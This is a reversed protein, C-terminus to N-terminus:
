EGIQRRVRDLTAAGGAGTSSGPQISGERAQVESRRDTPPPNHVPCYVNGDNDIIYDHGEPCRPVTYRANRLKELTVNEGPHQITWATINASLTQRNVSCAAVKSKDIQTDVYNKETLEDEKFYYGGLIMIIALAILIGILTFGKSRHFM